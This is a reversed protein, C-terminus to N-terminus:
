GGCLEIAQIGQEVLERAMAAAESYDNVAVSLLHVEPTVVWAKEQNAQPALFIFAGKIAM